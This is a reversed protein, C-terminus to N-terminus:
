SRAAFSRKSLRPVADPTPVFHKESRRGRRTAARRAQHYFCLGIRRGNPPVGSCSGSLDPDGWTQIEFDTSGENGM